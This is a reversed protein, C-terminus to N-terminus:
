EDWMALKLLHKAYEELTRWKPFGFYYAFKYHAERTPLSCPANNVLERIRDPDYPEMGRELGHREAEALDAANQKDLQNFHERVDFPKGQESM